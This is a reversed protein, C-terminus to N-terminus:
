ALQGIAILAHKRDQRDTLQGIISIVLLGAMVDALVSILLLGNPTSGNVEVNGVLGAALLDVLVRNGM